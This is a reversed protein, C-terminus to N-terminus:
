QATMVRALLPNQTPRLQASSFGAQRLLARIARPTRPRGSGMALLYLGFYAGGAKEAGRTGAMPEGILVTGGPALARRVARLLTLAAGDDHDHLVRVLTVLDAGDPLPDRRFDGESVATRAGAPDAALRARALAAVAPLDFLALELRPARRAAEILFGGSGGGVDLLRRHRAIRYAGFIEAAIMTQSAAMLKSYPAAEDAAVDGTAYPWYRGLSTQVEGRLLAVPDRIDDYLLRHHAIMATVGPNDILAAGTSGLGYRGNRQAAAIQLASAAALLRETRATTLGLAPALEAADKSGERLRQPLELEVCALLIQSYVFGACLDFLTGARARAM